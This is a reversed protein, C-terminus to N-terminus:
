LRDADSQTRSRGISGPLAVGGGGGGGGGSLVVYAVEWSLLPAVQTRLGRRRTGIISMILERGVADSQTRPTWAATLFCCFGDRWFQGVRGVRGASAGVRGVRWARGCWREVVFFLGRGLYFLRLIADSADSADMVSTMMISGAKSILCSRPLGDGRNCVGLTLCREYRAPNWRAQPPPCSLPGGFPGLPGGATVLRDKANEAVKGRYANTKRM